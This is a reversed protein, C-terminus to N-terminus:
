EELGRAAEAHILGVEAEGDRQAQPTIHFPEPARFTPGLEDPVRGEDVELAGGHPFAVPVVERIELELDFGRSVEDPAPFM